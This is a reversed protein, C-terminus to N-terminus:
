SIFFIVTVDNADLILFFSFYFEMGVFHDRMDSSVCMILINCRWMNSILNFICSNNVWLMSKQTIGVVFWFHCYTPVSCFSQNPKELLLPLVFLFYWFALTRYVIEFNVQVSYKSFSIYGWTKTRCHSEISQKLHLM